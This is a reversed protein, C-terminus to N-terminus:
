LRSLDSTWSGERFYEFGPLNRKYYGNDRSFRGLYAFELNQDHSDIVFQLVLRIPLDGHGFEPDYFVYAIHSINQDFLCVSYAVVRDNLKWVYLKNFIHNTFITKVSSMPFDWKLQRLWNNIQIKIESTFYINEFAFTFQETKRLIRRNESTLSFNKLHCRCSTDFYFYKQDNRQPLFGAAYMDPLPQHPSLNYRAM